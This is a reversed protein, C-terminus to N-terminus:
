QNAAPLLPSHRVDTIAPGGNPIARSNPAGPTGLNRATLINGAAELWNGRLRLLIESHGALWRVKARITATQGANLPSTLTTRIRNAGTDGHDTARVHLCHVSSNYADVAEHGSNVHNGQAVWGSMGHEFDASSM